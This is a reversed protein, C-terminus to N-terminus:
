CCRCATIATLRENPVAAQKDSSYYDYAPSAGPMENWLLDHMAASMKM